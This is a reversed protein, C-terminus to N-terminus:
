SPAIVDVVPPNSGGQQASFEFNKPSVGITPPPTKSVTMSVKVEQPNNYSNPDTIKITTTYPEERAEIGTKKASIEHGNIEGSSTGKSPEVEIWDEECTIDYNLTDIGTNKIQLIQPEPNGESKVAAFSMEFSNLWIVPRTLSDVQPATSNKKCGFPVIIALIFFLFILNKTFRLAM